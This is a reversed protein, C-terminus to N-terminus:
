ELHLREMIRAHVEEISGVGDIDLFTVSPDKRYFEVTPLVDREFAIKRREIADQDDDKRGQKSSRLSLRKSSEDHHIDLYIMWPKGQGYFPFVSELTKAELLKRPTGDFIIHEEGTYKEVLVKTWLYVPIFEPMLWGKEVVNKGLRATYSDGQIFKRFEAGTEVHLIKRSPDKKSLADGLLAAQTGKGAGARGIFLFAQAKM